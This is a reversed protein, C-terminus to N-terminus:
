TKTVIFAREFRRSLRSFYESLTKSGFYRTRFQTRWTYVPEDLKNIITNKIVGLEELDALDKLLEDKNVPQPLKKQYTQTINELTALNAEETEQIADVIQQKQLHLKQYISANEKFRRRIQVWSFPVLALAFASALTALPLSSQSIATTVTNWKRLPEWYEATNEAFPLLKEEMISLDEPNDFYTIFSLKAQKKQTTNDIEFLATTFYYLVLQIQNQGQEQFAFYRAIIPPDEQIRIDRLDLSTVPQDGKPIAWTILCVEWNHLAVTSEAIELAVDVKSDGPKEPYYTFALSFDQGSLEEFDTDRYIFRLSYNEIQPFLAMNGQQGSSTQIMISAPGRTLSFVPSQIYVVLLTVIIITVIKATNYIRIKKRSRAPSKDFSAPFKAKSYQINPNQGKIDTKAFIQTKFIKEAIVLLLLTGLFILVWGGLLHFLELALEAGWQYGILVITTIRVVNLLYILPFGVAMIAFKKWIKDRVIYALFAAFVAFGVLSYIGSCAIDVAFTLPQNSSSILNITPTGSVITIWSKVGMLNAFANAM